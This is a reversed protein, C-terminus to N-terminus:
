EIVQDNNVDPRPKKSMLDIVQRILTDESGAPMAVEDYDDMQDLSQIMLIDISTILTDPAESLKSLRLVHSPEGAGTNVNSQELTYVPTSDMTNVDLESFVVNATSEMPAFVTAPNAHDRVQRIGHGDPLQVPAFPLFAYAQSVISAEYAKSWADLQSFDSNRKGNFWASYIAQNFVDNLHTKIEEPHYMGKADGANDSALWSQIAEVLHIKKM